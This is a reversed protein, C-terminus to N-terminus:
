ELVRDESRREKEISRLAFTLARVHRPWALGSKRMRRLTREGLGAHAALEAITVGVRRRKEDIRTLAQAQDPRYPRRQKKGRAPM